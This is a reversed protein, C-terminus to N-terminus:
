HRHDGLVAHLNVQNPKNSTIPSTSGMVVGGGGRKGTDGNSYKLLICIITKM